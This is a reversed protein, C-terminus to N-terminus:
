EPNIKNLYRCDPCTAYIKNKGTYEWEKGCKKCKLEIIRKKM